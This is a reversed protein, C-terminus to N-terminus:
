AFQLLTLPTGAPFTGPPIMQFKGAKNHPLFKNHLSPAPPPHNFSVAALAHSKLLQEEYRGESTLFM